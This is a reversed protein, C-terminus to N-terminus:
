LIKGSIKNLTRAIKSEDHMNLASVQKQWLREADNKLFERKKLFGNIKLRSILLFVLLYRWLSFVWRRVLNMIMTSKDIVMKFVLLDHHKRMTCTKYWICLPPSPSEVNKNKLPVLHFQVWVNQLPGTSVATLIASLSQTFSCENRIPVLHFQVRWLVTSIGQFHAKETRSFM